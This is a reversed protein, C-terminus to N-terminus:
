PQFAVRRDNEAVAAQERKRSARICRV